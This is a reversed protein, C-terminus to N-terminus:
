VNLYFVCIDFLSGECLIFTVFCASKKGVRAWSLVTKSQNVNCSSFCLTRIDLLQSLNEM